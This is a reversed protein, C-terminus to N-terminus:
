IHLSENKTHDTNIFFDRILRNRHNETANYDTTELTSLVRLAYKGFYKEVRRLFMMQGKTYATIFMDHLEEMELKEETAIRNMIIGLIEKEYLYGDGWIREVTEEDVIGSEDIASVTILETVSENLGNFLEHYSEGTPTDFHYKSSFGGKRSHTIDIGKIKVSRLREFQCRHVLEHVLM